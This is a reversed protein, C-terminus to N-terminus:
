GKFEYLSISADYDMDASGANRNRVLVTYGAPIEIIPDDFTGELKGMGAATLKIFKVPTVTSDIQLCIEFVNAEDAAVEVRVLKAKNTVQKSVLVTNADPATQTTGMVDYRAYYSKIDEAGM